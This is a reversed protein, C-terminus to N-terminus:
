LAQDPSSVETIQNDRDYPKLGWKWEALLKVEAIQNAKRAVTEV